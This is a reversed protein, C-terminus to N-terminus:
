ARKSGQVTVAVTHNPWESPNSLVAQWEWSRVETWEDRLLRLDGAYLMALLARRFSQEDDFIRRVLAIPMPGALLQDLVELEPVIIM